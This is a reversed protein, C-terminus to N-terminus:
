RTGTTLGDINERATAALHQIEEALSKFEVAIVGLGKGADGVRAAEVSANLSVLRVHKGIRELRVLIDGIADGHASVQEVTEHRKADLDAWLNDCLDTVTEFFGGRGFAFHADIATSLAQLDDGDVADVVQRTLDCMRVLGAAHRPMSASTEAIWTCIEPPFEGEPDTGEVLAAARTMEHYTKHLVERWHARADDGEPKLPNVRFLLSGFLAARIARARVTAIVDIAARRQAFLVAEPSPVPPRLTHAALVM